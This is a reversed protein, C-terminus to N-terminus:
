HGHNEFAYPQPSTQDHYHANAKPNLYIPRDVDGAEFAAWVPDGVEPPEADTMPAAWQIHRSGFLSPISLRTNAGSVATVTARHFGCLNNRKIYVPLTQKGQEFTVWVEDGLHAPESNDLPRAWESHASGFLGPVHLRARYLDQPDTAMVKARYFGQPSLACRRTGM